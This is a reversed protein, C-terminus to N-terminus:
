RRPRGIMASECGPATLSAWEHRRPAPRRRQPDARAGAVVFLYDRHGLITEESAPDEHGALVLYANPTELVHGYVALTAEVRAHCGLNVCECIFVQAGDTVSFRGALEVIRENVGARGGGSELRPACASRHPRHVGPYAEM